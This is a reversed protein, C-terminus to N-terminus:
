AATDTPHRAEFDHVAKTFAAMTTKRYTTPPNTTAGPTHFTLTATTLTGRLTSKPTGSPAAVVLTLTRGEQHGTFPQTFDNTHDSPDVAQFTGTVTGHADTTWDFVTFDDLPNTSPDDAFTYHGPGGTRASVAAITIGTGAAAFLLTAALATLLTSRPSPPPKPPPPSTIPPSSAPTAAPPDPATLADSVSALFAPDAALETTLTRTAAERVRQDDPWQHLALYATSAVATALRLRNTLLADLAALPNTSAAPGATSGAFYDALHDM